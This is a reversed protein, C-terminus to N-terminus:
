LVITKKWSAAPWHETSGQVCQLSAADSNLVETQASRQGNLSVHTVARAGRVPHHDASTRESHRVDREWRPTLPLLIVGNTLYRTFGCSVFAGNLFFSSFNLQGCDLYNIFWCIFGTIERTMAPRSVSLVNILVQKNQSPDNAWMMILICSVGVVFQASLSGKALICIKQWKKCM